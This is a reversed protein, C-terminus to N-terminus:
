FDYDYGITEGVSSVLITLLLQNVDYWGRHSNGFSRRVLIICCNFYIRCDVATNTIIPRKQDSPQTQSTMIIVVLSTKSNLWKSVFIIALPRQLWKTTMM